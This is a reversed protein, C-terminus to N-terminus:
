IKSDKKNSIQNRQSLTNHLLLKEPSMGLSSPSRASNSNNSKLSLLKDPLM